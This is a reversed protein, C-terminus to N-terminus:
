LADEVASVVADLTDELRLLYTENELAWPKGTPRYVLEMGVISIGHETIRPSLGEWRKLLRKQVEGLAIEEVEEQTAPFGNACWGVSNQPDSFDDWVLRYDDAMIHAADTNPHTIPISFTTSLKNLM